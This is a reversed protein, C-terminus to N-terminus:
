EKFFGEITKELEIQDQSGMLERASHMALLPVGIDVTKIPIWSSIITGLTSGSLLDSRNVFKQYKAGHAQCIQELTAIAETDYAYKQTSDLKFVVGKGLECFSTPDNKALHNPHLCHAVDVSLLMSNFYANYLSARGHGLGTYIKELLMSTLSSDAGQKTRSGIEENDFMAIVHIDHENIDNIIGKLCAVVSTLNDLRPSSFFEENLGTVCPEECNYIVLDFDLIEDVNVQLQKALYEMFFHDNNLTENAMSIIPSLDTQKNLEVGKNIERNIHIALNPITLLPVQADFLVTKPNMVSDSKLCVKGAVSLPRDLWTNLIPGGYTETNIQLYGHEKMEPFPKIHFCPHDTHATAIRLAPLNGPERGTTFAFITTGYPITYYRGGNEINWTTDFPLETFGEADLIQKSKAVVHYPSTADTIFEKLSAIAANM